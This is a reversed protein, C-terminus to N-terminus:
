RPQGPKAPPTAREVARRREEGEFLWREGLSRMLRISRHHLKEQDPHVSISLIASNPLEHYLMELILQESRPDFANTAEEMFIWAPQALLARAFGLRQRARLPLVKDWTDVEDLRPLLWAIGACELAHGIAADSFASTGRPYSLAMRLTGEPLFPHQPM